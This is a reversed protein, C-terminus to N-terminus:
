SIPKSSPTKISRDYTCHMRNEDRRNHLEYCSRPVHRLGPESHFEHRVFPRFPQTALALLLADDPAVLDEEEVYQEWQVDVLDDVHVGILYQQLLDLSMLKQSASCKGLRSYEAYCPTSSVLMSDVGRTLFGAQRISKTLHVFLRQCSRYEFSIRRLHREPERETWKREKRTIDQWRRRTCEHCRPLRRGRM